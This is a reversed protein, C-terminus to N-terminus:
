HAIITQKMLDGPIQHLILNKGAPSGYKQTLRCLVEDVGKYISKLAMDKVRYAGSLHRLVLESDMCLHVTNWPALFGNEALYTIATLFTSAEAVNNTTKRNEIPFRSAHHIPEKEVLDTHLHNGYPGSIEYVAFSGYMNHEGYRGNCGGDCYVLYEAM